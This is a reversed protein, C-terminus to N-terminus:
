ETVIFPDQWECTQKDSNIASRDQYSGIYIKKYKVSEVYLVYRATFLLRHHLYM